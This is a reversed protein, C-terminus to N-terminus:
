ILSMCMFFHVKVAYSAGENSTFPDLVFEPPDGAPVYKIEANFFKTPFNFHTRDVQLISKVSFM